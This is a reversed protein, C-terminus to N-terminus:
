RRGGRYINYMNRAYMDDPHETVWYNLLNMGKQNNGTAGYLYILRYATITASHDVQWAEEFAEIAKDFRKQTYNLEGLYQWYLTIEPWAKVGKEINEVGSQLVAEVSDPMGMARYHNILEVYTQYYIPFLGLADILTQRAKVSDGQQAFFRALDIFREPYTSTLGVNNEDKFVDVDDVGRYRFENYLLEETRETDVELMTKDPMVQLAMGKRMTYDNLHIRNSVPVSSSFYIPYKWKNTLVIHEIMQDQVRVVNNTRPDQFPVLFRNQGRVPDYYPKDPRYLVIQGRRDFPKWIIQEDTLSIPVNMQNKLQMIYWDTNLLSLNIVRVDTRFKEVEQIYWLPFTDNDGNTFIIGNEDCSSLINYAYDPPAYDGTRDHTRYHYTLTDVPLLLIIILAAGRIINAGAAPVSKKLWSPLKALLSSAGVGIIIAYFIFAPTFFYDRDRVELQEGRTGDSFNLYMILGLSSILFIAALLFGNKFTKRLSIYLGFLGLLFPLYRLVGWTNNSYQEKFYGWYGMHPYDGFQNKLKGRRPFMRTVMSEQGYQKRELYSKLRPWNDPNNENIAPKQAAKIPIYIHPTFGIIAAVMISFYLSWAYRAKGRITFTKYGTFAAFGFMLALWTELQWDMLVPVLIQILFYVPLAFSFLIAWSAWYRWDRLKSHDVLAIYIVIAPVLMFSTLHIGISLFLLFSIGILIRDNGPKGLRESWILAMYTVIAMLMMSLGYVETEVANFWFTSSFALILSGSLAGAYISFQTFPEKDLKQKDSVSIKEAIKVIIFYSMMVTIASSLASILNSNLAPTSLINLLMFFRGILIFLPTGPPHPVGLIYSSAIFEGCDWFSLTPAMTKIFVIFSIILALGAGSYFVIKTKKDHELM